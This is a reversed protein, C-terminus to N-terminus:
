GLPLVGGGDNPLWFSLRVGEWEPYEEVVCIETIEREKDTM